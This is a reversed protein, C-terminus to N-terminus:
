VVTLGHKIAFRILEGNSGIHLKRVIRARHTEVTRPSIFLKKAIITNQLGNALLHFIERERPSLPALPDNRFPKAGLEYEGESLVIYKAVAPPIYRKDTYVIDLAQVFEQFSGSKSIFGLAGSLLAQKILDASDIQSLIVPKVDVIKRRQLELLFELGSPGPLTIETLLIEPKHQAMKEFAEAMDSAEDVVRYNHLSDILQRIAHRVLLDSDVLLISRKELSSITPSNDNSYYSM